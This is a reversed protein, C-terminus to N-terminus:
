SFRRNQSKRREDEDKGGALFYPSKLALEFFLVLFTNSIAPVIINLITYSSFSLVLLIVMKKRTKYFGYRFLSQSKIIEQIEDFSKGKTEPVCFLSFIGALLCFGAYMWFSGAMGVLDNMKNFFNTVFFSITWSIVSVMMTANQRQNNPFVESCITWPVSSIGFNYAFIYLILSALPIWSIGGTPWMTFDKIYFYAGIAVLSVTVGFLSVLILFRRGQRDVIFPSVMSAFFICISSIVSCMESSLKSGSAEFILQMYTAISGVGSLEQAALLVSSILFAKQLNPYRFIDMLKGNVENEIQNRIEKLEATIQTQSPNRRLLKLSKRMKAEDKGRALFYPSEPALIFFLVLFATPIVAAILNFLKYSVFPAFAYSLCNGIAWFVNLIQTLAGRDHNQAIEAVYLPLIAYSAGVAVGAVTRAFYILNINEAFALTFFSISLPAATVLLAPKRGFKEAIYGCPFPGIIGGLFLLSGIWADESKTIPRGLPNISTDNSYLKPLEPSPWSFPIDTPIALLGAVLVVLFSYNLRIEM